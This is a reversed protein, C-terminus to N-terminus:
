REYILEGSEVEALFSSDQADLRIPFIDVPLIRSIDRTLKRYRMALELYSEESDQFIAIDLDHPSDSHLFSGFVVVRAIESQGKLLRVLDDKIRSKSAATM